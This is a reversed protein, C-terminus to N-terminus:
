TDKGALFIETPMVCIKLLDLLSGWDIKKINGHKTAPNMVKSRMQRQAVRELKLGEKNGFSFFSDDDKRQCGKKSTVLRRTAIM